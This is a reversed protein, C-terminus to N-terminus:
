IFSLSCQPKGQDLPLNTFEKVQAQETPKELESEAYMHGLPYILWIHTLLMIICHM